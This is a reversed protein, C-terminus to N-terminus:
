KSIIKIAADAIQKMGSSNPHFGDITEYLDVASYLDVLRCGKEDACSKIVDCYESIHHGGYEFTFDIGEKKGFDSKCLTFCWIESEPYNNKINDLMKSYAVSFVATNESDAKLIPTPKLGRGWDNTGIFVMVVDPSIGGEGLSACRAESCGYSPIEYIPLHCVTSGSISHNVLLKGGLHDIVRGWWCDSPSFVEAHVKRM